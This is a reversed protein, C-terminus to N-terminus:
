ALAFVFSNYRSSPSFLYFWKAAVAAFSFATMRKDQAQGLAPHVSYLRKEDPFYIDTEKAPVFFKSVVVCVTHASSDLQNND